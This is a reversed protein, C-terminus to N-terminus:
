MTQGIAARREPEYSDLVAEGLTGRIVGALKWALNRADPIGLNLGQGGIPSHVHAADGILFCRDSRLAAAVREESGFTTLTRMEAVRLGGPGREDLLRQVHEVTVPERGAVSGSIRFEGGPLPAILLVGAESLFYHVEERNIEGEIRGEALLFAVPIPEGDFAIGLQERVESHKGDAGIVWDAEIDMAAGDPGTASVTV